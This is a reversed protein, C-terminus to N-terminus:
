KHMVAAMEKQKLKMAMASLFVRSLLSCVLAAITVTV